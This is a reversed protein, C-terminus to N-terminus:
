GSQCRPLDVILVDPESDMKHSGTSDLNLHNVLARALDTHSGGTVILANMATRTLLWRVFSSKGTGGELDWWWEITRGDAPTELRTLLQKQWARLATIPKHLSPAAAVGYRWPGKIRSEEKVCYAQLHRWDKALEIHTGDPLWRKITGFRSVKTYIGCQLHQRKTKPCEELQGVFYICRGEKVENEFWDLLFDVTVSGKPYLTLSWARGRSKVDCKKTAKSM